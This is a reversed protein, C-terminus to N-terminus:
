ERDFVFQGVRRGMSCSYNLVTGRPQALITLPTKGTVPLVAQYSLGPIVVSRACCNAGSTIWLLTVPRGAPLHLVAPTYGEDSVNVQCPASPNIAAAMGPMGVLRGVQRPLAVPVGALNLGFVCSVVGLAILVLAVLRRFQQELAAGLRTASYAVLFFLKGIWGEAWWGLLGAM